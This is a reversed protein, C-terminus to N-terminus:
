QNYAGHKVPGVYENLKWGHKIAEYVFDKATEVSEKVSKGLALNSTIAAAFTCGAGHNYLTDIKENELWSFDKGDYFLDIAKDHELAKGGKIVVNKAGLEYIKVAADKMGDMTKIPGTRALQGAEFLNPTIIDARPLLLERMADTNEPQLVEDEGKCVMVPDIVVNELKHEDIKRAGLEIIEVSGLMGTKMADIGVSLITNLQKEVIEVDIPYVGHSWNNDPDMTVISTLANMGYVGHEQFTKLDAQIGAGGSSDSGALTLTKKMTM